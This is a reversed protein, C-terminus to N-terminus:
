GVPSEQTDWARYAAAEEPTLDRHEMPIRAADPTDQPRTKWRQLLWYWDEPRRRVEREIAEQARMTTILLDRQRDGTDSLPIPAGIRVRHTHDPLREDFLPLIAAGTLQALYATGLYTSAPRGFFQVFLGPPRANLDGLIGLCENRKLVRICERVDTMPVVKLGHAERVRNFLETIATDGQARAIATTPYGSMGMLTGCVEWNGLHATMVIVGKGRALAAEVHETGELHAWQTIEERTMYPLRFFEMLSEGLRTYSAYAIRRVEACSPDLGYALAIDQSIRRVHRASLRPGVWALGRGFALAMGLPLRHVVRALLFLIRYGM